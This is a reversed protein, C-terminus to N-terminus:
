CLADALGSTILKGAIIPIASKGSGPCASVIITDTPDGCVINDIAKLFEGQHKRLTM